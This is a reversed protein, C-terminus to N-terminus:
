SLRHLEMELEVLAPVEGTGRWDEVGAGVVGEEWDRREGEEGKVIARALEV